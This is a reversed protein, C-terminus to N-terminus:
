GGVRGVLVHAVLPVEAVSLSGVLLAGGVNIVSGAVVVHGEVNGDSAMAGAGFGLAAGHRGEGGGVEGGVGDALTVGGLEGVGGGGIRGALGYGIEPVEAVSLGGGLLVGCVLEARRTVM